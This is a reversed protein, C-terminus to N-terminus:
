KSRDYAKQYIKIQESLGSKEMKDLYEKWDADDTPDLEGTVFLAFYDTITSLITAGMKELKQQEEVNFPLAAVTEEPKRWTKMIETHVRNLRASEAASGSGESEKSIAHYNDDTYISPMYVGWRTDTESYVDANLVKIKSETGYVTPQAEDAEEWYVGKEGHRARTVSEDKYCFDLFRMALETDECDKTIFGSLLLDRPWQVLYGGKGTEDALPELVEYQDLVQTRYTARLLPNGSWIGVKATTGDGSITNKADNESISFNILGEEYLQRIYVLSQRYEESITPAWVKGDTINLPRKSDYYVFANVIYRYVNPSLLPLEDEMGNGNPDEEKFAKLVEYLETVNKPAQKGVASLWKTNINMMEQSYDNVTVASYLPMGYIEGTDVNSMSREVREREDKPLKDMQAKFNEGYKEILDSLELLFGDEGYQVMMLTSMNSFGILVDPLEDGAACMLSLQNMAESGSSFLVFEIDINLSEEFYRTYANDEYSTVSTGQPMGVTLTKKDGSTKETKGCGTFAGLAMVVALMLSVVRKM